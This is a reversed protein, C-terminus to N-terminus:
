EVNSGDFVLPTASKISDKVDKKPEPIKAKRRFNSSFKWPDRASQSLSSARLSLISLPTSLLIRVAQRAKDDATM